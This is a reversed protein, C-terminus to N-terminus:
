ARRAALSFTGFDLNDCAASKPTSTSDNYRTDLWRWMLCGVCMKWSGGRRILKWCSVCADGLLTDQVGVEYFRKRNLAPNISILLHIM